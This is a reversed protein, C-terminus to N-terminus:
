DRRFTEKHEQHEERLIIDINDIHKLLLGHHCDCGGDNTTLPVDEEGTTLRSLTEGDIPLKRATLKLLSLGELGAQFPLNQFFQVPDNTCTLDYGGGYMGIFPALHM